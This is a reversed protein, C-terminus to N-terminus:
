SFHLFMLTSDIITQCTSKLEYSTCFKDRGLTEKAKIPRQRGRLGGRRQGGRGDDREMGGGSEWVGPCEEEKNQM